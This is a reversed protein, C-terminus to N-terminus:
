IIGKGAWVSRKKALKFTRSPFEAQISKRVAARRKKPNWIQGKQKQFKSAPAWACRCNPHRPILGRAQDITMIVGELEGCLPCVKDDGATLWEAFIGVKKVGLLEFATLQGEAQAAVIETRALVMARTKTISAINRRLEGAIFAAGKGHVLGNTLIRSMQQSMADTIGKLETFSRTYLAEVESMATKASFSSRLFEEMGGKYFGVSPALDPRHIDIYARNAGKMYASEVYMATWPKGTADVTLIQADIQQQLWARFSKVKSANSQFRWAQVPVQQMMVLADKKPILGFADDDIVLERVADAIVRFRRRMDRVFLNRLMSTRSPDRRLQNPM